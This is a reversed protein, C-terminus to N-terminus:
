VSPPHFVAFLMPKPKASLYCITTKPNAINLYHSFYYDIISNTYVIESKEKLNSDHKKEIETLKKLEARLVCNGNCSNDKQTRLECINKSIDSQNVKFKLCM